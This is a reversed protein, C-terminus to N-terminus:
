QDDSSSRTDDRLADKIQKIDVMKSPRAIMAESLLSQLAAVPLDAWNSPFPALRRKESSSEFVLWGNAYTAPLVDAIQGVRTSRAERQVEYATWETGHDDRFHRM